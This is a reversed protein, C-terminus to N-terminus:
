VTLVANRGGHPNPVSMKAKPDDVWKGDVVFRYEYRGPALSLGKFWKTDSVRTLPTAGPKWENFGGVVSVNGAKPVDLEFRVTRQHCPQAQSPSTRAQPGKPQPAPKNSLPSPSQPASPAPKSATTALTNTGNM